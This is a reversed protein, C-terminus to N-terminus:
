WLNDGAVMPAAVGKTEDQFQDLVTDFSKDFVGYCPGFQGGGSSYCGLGATSDIRRFAPALV